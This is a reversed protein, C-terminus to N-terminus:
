FRGTWGVGGGHGDFWATAEGRKTKRAQTAYRIVAGVLLASGVSIAIISGNRLGTARRRGDAYDQNTDEDGVSKALSAAGGYLGFGVAVGALGVGLLVGGVPDRHWPRVDDQPAPEIPEPEPEVLPDSELIAEVIDDDDPESEDVEEDALQERCHEIHERAQAVIGEDPGTDIFKQYLDIASRCEGRSREAQAWPYLLAPAPEILYAAEIKEAAEDYAGAAFAKQAEGVLRRAEPDSVIRPPAALALSILCALASPFSLPIAVMM